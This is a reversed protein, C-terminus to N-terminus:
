GRISRIGRIRKSSSLLFKLFAIAQKGAKRRQNGESEGSESSERNNWKM